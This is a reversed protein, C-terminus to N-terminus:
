KERSDSILHPLRDGLGALCVSVDNVNRIEKVQTFM